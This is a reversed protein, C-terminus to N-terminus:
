DDSWGPLAKLQEETLMTRYGGNEYRLHEVPILVEKSGIGLFGGVDATIGVIRGRNNAIVEEVEGVSQGRITIIKAEKMQRITLGGPGLVPENEEMERLYTGTLVPTQTVPSRGRAAPAVPQAARSPRAPDVQPTTRQAPAPNQALTPTATTLLLAFLALAKNM